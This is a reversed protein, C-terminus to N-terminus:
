QSMATKTSGSTLGGGRQAAETVAVATSEKHFEFLFTGASWGGRVNPSQDWLGHLAPTHMASLSGKVALHIVTVLSM